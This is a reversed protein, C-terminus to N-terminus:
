ASASGNGSPPPRGGAPIWRPEFWKQWSWGAQPSTMAFRLTIPEDARATTMDVATVAFALVLVPITKM